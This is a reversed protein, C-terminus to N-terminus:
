LTKLYELLARKEDPSLDTGWVHGQNSNGVEGVRLPTGAREAEPGESVFGVRVPDYVEYGRYFSRTRAEPPELLEGLYPVSGNHLYPARLWIGDLPVSVYGGTSRFHDFRGGGAYGQRNYAEAAEPTWMAARHPDTRSDGPGDQWAPDDLAIVTGTREGDPAHCDGCHETYIPEGAAALVPDIAEPFYEAMKPPQLDLLYEELRELDAMPLSKRTAGDGLASSVVVERLSTNLGDWHFAKGEATRPRLNWVPEMDSNGITDGVDVGLLSVKVPNFPDIRGRGWPPRSDTWEFSRKQELLANKTQPILVFRYLLAEHAPLTTIQGIANMVNKANFRPDSASAFLFRQYALVDQTNSPGGLVLHREVEGERRLSTTHCLACNLGVRDFGIRKKTFGVPMPRGQEWPFGLAAYGGPAPLHEPFMKPLVLWIWYPVGQANETGISGYKFYEEISDDALQQPEERFLLFWGAVGVLVALIVLVVLVRVVKKGRSTKAM